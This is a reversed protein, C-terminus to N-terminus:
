QLDITVFWCYLKTDTLLNVVIVVVVIVVIFVAIYQNQPIVLCDYKCHVILMVRKSVSPPIGNSAICLMAGMNLRDARSISFSSGNISPVISFPFHVGFLCFLLSFINLNNRAVDAICPITAYLLQSLSHVTCHCHLFAVSQISM